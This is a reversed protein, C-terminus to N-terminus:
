VKYGTSRLVLRKYYDSTVDSIVISLVFVQEVFFSQFQLM